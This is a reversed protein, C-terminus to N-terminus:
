AEKAKAVAAVYKDADTEGKLVVVENGEADLM